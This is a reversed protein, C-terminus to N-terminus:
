LNEERVRYAPEKTLAQIKKWHGGGKWIQVIAILHFLLELMQGQPTSEALLGIAAIVAADAMLMGSAIRLWYGNRLSLLWVLLYVALLIAGIVLGTVALRGDQAGSLDMWVGLRTLYCSAFVSFPLITNRGATLLALSATTLVIVGLLTQRSIRLQQRLWDRYSGSLSPDQM